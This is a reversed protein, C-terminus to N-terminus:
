CGIRALCEGLTPLLADLLERHRCVGDEFYMAKQMAPCGSRCFNRYPCDCAFREANRDALFATRIREEEQSTVFRYESRAYFDCPFRSGDSEIVTQKTCIGNLGCVGCYGNFFLDRLQRFWAIDPLNEGGQEMDQRLREYLRRYFASYGSPSLAGADTYICPIFQVQTIGEEKLREYVRDAERSLDETLVALVSYTIGSQQLRYLTNRVEEATGRGDARVRYRDHVEPLIDYSLGLLVDKERFLQLMEDTLLTGNTQLNYYVAVRNEPDICRVAEFFARYFGIGAALPEGGQFNFVLVPRGAGASCEKVARGICEQMTEKSM